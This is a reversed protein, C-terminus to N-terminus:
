VFELSQINVVGLWRYVVYVYIGYVKSFRDFSKINGHIRVVIPINTSRAYFDLCFATDANNM